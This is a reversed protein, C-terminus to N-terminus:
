HGLNIKQAVPRFSPTDLVTMHAFFMDKGSKLLNCKQRIM